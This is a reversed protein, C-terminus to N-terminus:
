FPQNEIMLDLISILHIIKVKYKKLCTSTCLLLSCDFSWVKVSRWRGQLFAPPGSIGLSVTGVSKLTTCGDPVEFCVMVSTLSSCASSLIEVECIRDLSSFLAPEVNIQWLVLSCCTGADKM